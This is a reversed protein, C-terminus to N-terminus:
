LSVTAEQTLTSDVTGDLSKSLRRAERDFNNINYVYHGRPAESNGLVTENLTSASFVENGSGDDKLGLQAIDANSPYQQPVTLDVTVAAENVISTEQVVIRLLQPASSYIQTSSVTYTGDNSTSGTVTISDGNSLSALSLDEIAELTNNAVFTISLNRTGSESAFEQVPDGLVGTSVLKRQAYWGANYLNYEHEDTLATPRGSIQLGDDVLELDRVFIDVSYIVIQNGSEDYELLTPKEGNTIVVFNTLDDIQVSTNETSIEYSDLFTYSVDNRHILLVTKASPATERYVILILDPAQWYLADEFVVTSSGGHLQTFNSVLEEFGRRRARILGGLDLRFNLEDTTSNEPFSLPSAETILGNVLSVYDKEGRANSM